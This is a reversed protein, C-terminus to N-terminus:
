QVTMIIVRTHTLMASLVSENFNDNDGGWLCMCEPISNGSVGGWGGVGMGCTRHHRCEHAPEAVPGTHHEARQQGSRGDNYGSVPGAGNM